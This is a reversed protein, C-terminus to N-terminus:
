RASRRYGASRAEAETDFLVRNAPSVRDYFQGGPLHYTKSRLNGVIPGSWLGRRAQRADAELRQFSLRRRGGASALDARVAGREIMAANVETGDALSVFARLSGDAGKPSEPYALAVTKGEVLSALADRAERGYLEDGREPHHYAPAKVGALRILLGSALRLSDGMVVTEAVGGSPLVGAARDAATRSAEIGTATKGPRIEAATWWVLLGAALLGAGVAAWRLGRAAGVAREAGESVEVVGELALLDWLRGSPVRVDLTPGKPESGVVVADWAELTRAAAGLDDASELRLTVALPEASPAWEGEAGHLAALM